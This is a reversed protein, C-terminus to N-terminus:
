MDEAAGNQPNEPILPLLVTNQEGDVKLEKIPKRLHIFNEKLIIDNPIFDARFSNSANEKYDDIPGRSESL